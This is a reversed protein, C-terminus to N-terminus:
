FKVDLNNNDSIGYQSWLGDKMKSRYMDPKRVCAERKEKPVSNYLETMVEEPMSTNEFLYKSSKAFMAGWDQDKLIDTVTDIATRIITKAAANLKDNDCNLYMGDCTGIQDSMYTYVAPTVGFMGFKRVMSSATETANSIDSSAGSTLHNEGFVLLEAAYGALNVAINNVYDDASIFDEEDLSPMMFGSADSSVCNSVLKKPLKGFLKAYAVFHGSEHVATVAQTENMRNKRKDDIRFEHVAEFREDSGDEMVANAVLTNKDFELHVSRLKKGTRDIAEVVIKPIKTTVIDYIGSLIPRVGQTPFVSEKYVTDAVSDGYSMTFRYDSEADACAADLYHRIIDNFDKVSFSPYMFIMNGLRAIQENRFRSQLANKIDVMTMKSTAEHLIDADMDPNMNYSVQYAEDINGIVFVLSNSYDKYFGKKSKSQLDMCMAIFADLNMGCLKLKFQDLEVSNDIISTYIDYLVSITSSTVWLNKDNCIYEGANQCWEENDHPPFKSNSINFWKQIVYINTNAMDKNNFVRDQNVPRGNVIKVGSNSLMTASIMINGLKTITYRSLKAYLKGTDIMEWITKMATNSNDEKGDKTITAAYQFEDFVFIPNPGKNSSNEDISGEMDDSNDESIKALNYYTVSQNIDLLDFLRIVLSTKGCGTMGWLNIVVPKRVAHPFMYWPTMGDIIGDIIRDIGFFESKLVRRANELAAEKKKIENLDM